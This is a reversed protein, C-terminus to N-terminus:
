QNQARKINIKELAARLGGAVAEPRDYGWFHLYFMRPVETLMHNHVATVAINSETLATIVPNVENATLVFDGTAAVKDNAAQFNLSTATGLFGPVEVDNELITHNRSFDYKLVSGQQKGPGLFYQVVSFVPPITEPPRAAAAPPTGTVALVAKMSAALKVADGMGTFHLYMVPMSTGTLHNHLATVEIKETMMKQIVRMVEDAKLVLDGTVVTKQNTRFAIWSTLGVRPDITVDGIKVDLDTRPYTVKFMNERAMGKKGLIKEVPEWFTPQAAAPLALASLLIIFLIKKM